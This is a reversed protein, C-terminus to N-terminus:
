RHTFGPQEKAFFARVGERCDASSFAKDSLALSARVAAEESTDFAMDVAQKCMQLAISPQGALKRAMDLATELAKGKAVVRNILGWAMATEVPLPDGFFMMEKARGEGIRRTVRM